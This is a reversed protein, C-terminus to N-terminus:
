NEDGPSVRRYTDVIIVHPVFASDDLAKLLRGAGKEDFVVGYRSLARFPLDDAALTMGSGLRKIRRRLTREHMEEDIYLVPRAQPITFHDLWKGGAALHLGLDLGLWTKLAGWEAYILAREGRAILPEVDWEIPPLPDRMISAFSILPLGPAAPVGREAHALAQVPTGNTVAPTSTADSM